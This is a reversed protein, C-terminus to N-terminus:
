KRLEEPDIVMLNNYILKKIDNYCDNCLMKLDCITDDYDFLKIWKINKENETENGCEDCVYIKKIM